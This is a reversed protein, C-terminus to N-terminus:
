PICAGEREHKCQLNMSTDQISIISFCHNICMSLINNLWFYNYKRLTKTRMCESPFICNLYFLIFINVIKRTFAYTHTDSLKINVKSSLIFPCSIEWQLLYVVHNWLSKSELALESILKAISIFEPLVM